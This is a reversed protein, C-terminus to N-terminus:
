STEGHLIREARASLPPPYTGRQEMRPDSSEGRVFRQYLQQTVVANKWTAFAEYWRVGSLDLGTRSAYREVVEARSPLGLREMGPVHIPRDADTDSPDPWYNLLMGVDALPDGLTAMDWDFVSAVRDPQGPRFQCNDLKPDNHLLTARQPPPLSAELQAGVRTMTADAEASAVLSWRHRWGALQREMFGVPRGLDQLGVAAPDVLHLEAIADVVALGIRRPAEHLTRLSPPLHAWVVEGSRYELLLLDSGAVDHDEGLAFARPARDYARWLRSLVRHERRMDHAGPALEGFPPRRLVLRLADAGTGFTLLYTLNASGNPFQRVELDGPVAVDQREMEGRVWSEVRDWPLEEGPRVPAVEPPVEHEWPEAEATTM